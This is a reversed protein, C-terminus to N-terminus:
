CSVPRTIVNVTVAMGRNKKQIYALASPEIIINM